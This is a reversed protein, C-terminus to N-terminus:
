AAKEHMKKTLFETVRMAGKGDMKKLCNKVL